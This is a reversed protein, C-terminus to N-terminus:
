AMRLVQIDRRTGSSASWRSGGKLYGLIYSGKVLNAKNVSRRSCRSLDRM